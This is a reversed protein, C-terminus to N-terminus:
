AIRGFELLQAATDRAAHQQHARRTGTFGQQRTGNGAFCFDREERDGTGVEDFHEDADARRAHAVHEVVRFLMGRANDEDIFDIRDAAM